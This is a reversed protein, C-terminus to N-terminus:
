GVVPSWASLDTDFGGNVVVNEACSLLETRSGSALLFLLSLLAGSLIEAPRPM